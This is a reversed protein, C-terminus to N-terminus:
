GPAHTSSGFVGSFSVGSRGRKKEGRSIALRWPKGAAKAKGASLRKRGSSLADEFRSQADDFEDDMNSFLQFTIYHVLYLHKLKHRLKWQSMCGQYMCLM